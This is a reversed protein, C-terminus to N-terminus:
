SRRTRRAWECKSRWGLWVSRSFSTRGMKRTCNRVPPPSAMVCAGCVPLFPTHGVATRAELDLQVASLVEKLEDGERELSACQGRVLVLESSGQSAVQHQASEM